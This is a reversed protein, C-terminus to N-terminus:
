SWYTDINVTDSDYISEVITGFIRKFRLNEFEEPISHAMGKWLMKSYHTDEPDDSWIAVVSNHDIFNYILDKVKFGHYTREIPEYRSEQKRLRESLDSM